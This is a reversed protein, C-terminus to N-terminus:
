EEENMGEAGATANRPTMLLPLSTAGRLRMDFDASTYLPFGRRGHPAISLFTAQKQRALEAVAQPLDQEAVVESTVTLPWNGTPERHLREEVTRLYHAVDDHGALHSPEDPEFAGIWALRLTASTQQSGSLAELVLKAPAIAAEAEETGDLLVLGHAPQGEAPLADTDTLSLVPIDGHHEMHEVVNGPAWRSLGTHAHAALVVLDAHQDDAVDLITAGVLGSRIETVTTVDALDPQSAVADLYASAADVDVSLTSPQMMPLIYPLFERPGSLVHLLVVTGHSARALRAAMPIAAEAYASGDLPTLIRQYM